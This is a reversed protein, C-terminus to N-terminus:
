HGAGPARTIKQAATSIRGVLASLHGRIKFKFTLNGQSFSSPSFALDQTYSEHQHIGNATFIFRSEAASKRFAASANSLSGYYNRNSNWCTIQQYLLTYKAEDQHKRLPWQNPVMKMEDPNDEVSEGIEEFVDAFSCQFISM